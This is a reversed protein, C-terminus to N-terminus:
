ATRRAMSRLGIAVTADPLSVATSTSPLGTSGLPLAPRADAGGIVVGDEADGRDGVDGVGVANVPEIRGAPVIVVEAEGGGVPPQRLIEGVRDRRLELEGPLVGEGVQWRRDVEAEAALGVAPGEVVAGDGALRAIREAELHAFSSKPM